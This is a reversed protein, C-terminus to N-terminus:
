MVTSSCRNATCAAVISQGVGPSMNDESLTEHFCGTPPCALCAQYTTEADEATAADSARVAVMIAGCCDGHTVLACDAPVTCSKDITRLYDAQCEAPTETKPDGGCAAVLFVIWIARM